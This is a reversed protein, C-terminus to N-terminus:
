VFFLWVTCRFQTKSAPFDILSHLLSQPLYAAAAMTTSDIRLCSWPIRLIWRWESSRKCYQWQFISLCRKHIRLTAVTMSRQPNQRSTSWFLFTSDTAVVSQVVRRKRYSAMSGVKESKQLASHCYDVTKSHNVVVSDVIQTHSKRCFKYLAMTFLQFTEITEM